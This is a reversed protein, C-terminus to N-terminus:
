AAPTLHAADNAAKRTIKPKPAANGNERIWGLAASRDIRTCKSGLRIPQPFGPRKILSWIFSESVSVEAALDPISVLTGTHKPATNIAM